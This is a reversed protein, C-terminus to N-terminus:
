DSASSSGNSIDPSQFAKTAEMPLFLITNTQGVSSELLPMLHWGGGSSAERAPPEMRQQPLSLSPHENAPTLQCTSAYHTTPGIAELSTGGEPSPSEFSPKLQKNGLYPM